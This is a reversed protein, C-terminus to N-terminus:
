PGWPFPTSKPDIHCNLPQSGSSTSSPWINNKCTANESQLMNNRGDTKLLTRESRCDQLNDSWRRSENVLPAGELSGTDHRRHCVTQVENGAGLDLSLITACDNAGVALGQNIKSTGHHKFKPALFGSLTCLSSSPFHPQSPPLSSTAAKAVM